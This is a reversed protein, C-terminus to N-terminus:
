LCTWHNTQQNTQYSTAPFPAFTRQPASKRGPTTGQPASKRGPTTRQPASKRGPTTRQPASTRGPTAGLPFTVAAVM